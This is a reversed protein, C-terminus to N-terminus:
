TVFGRTDSGSQDVVQVPGGSGVNKDGDDGTWCSFRRKEEGM